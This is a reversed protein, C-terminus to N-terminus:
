PSKNKEIYEKILEKDINCEKLTKELILAYEIIDRYVKLEPKNAICEKLLNEPIDQKVYETKIITKSCGALIM